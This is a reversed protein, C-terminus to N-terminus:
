IMQAVEERTLNLNTRNIKFKEAILFVFVFYLKKDFFFDMEQENHMNAVSQNYFFM